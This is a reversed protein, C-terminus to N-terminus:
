IKSFDLYLNKQKRSIKLSLKKCNLLKKAFVRAMGIKLENNLISYEKNFLQSSVKEFSMPEILFKVSNGKLYILKLRDFGLLTMKELALKPPLTKLLEKTFYEGLDLFIKRYEPGYSITYYYIKVFFGTLQYFFDNEGLSNFNFNLPSSNKKIILNSYNYDPNIVRLQFEKDSKNLNIIFNKSFKNKKIKLNFNLNYKNEVLSHIMGILYSNEKKNIPLVEIEIEDIEEKLVNFDALGLVKIKDLAYEIPSYKFNKDGNEFRKVFYNVGFTSQIYGCNYLIEQTNKEKLNLLLLDLLKNYIKIPFLMVPLKYQFAGDKEFSINSLDHLKKTLNFSIASFQELSM